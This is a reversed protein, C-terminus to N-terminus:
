LFNEEEAQLNLMGLLSLTKSVKAQITSTSVKRVVVIYIATGKGINSLLLKAAVMPYVDFSKFANHVDKSYKQIVCLKQRM